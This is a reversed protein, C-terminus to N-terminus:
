SVRPCRLVCVPCMPCVSSVHTRAGLMDEPCAWSVHGIGGRLIATHIILGVVYIFVLHLSLSWTQM